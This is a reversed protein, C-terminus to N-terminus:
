GRSVPQSPVPRGSHNGPHLMSPREHESLPSPTRATPEPVTDADLFCLVEGSSARVGLNRVAALRFGQDEQRVLIVDDPVMVDGPSGDDAVIVELLHRPYDQAALAHLTRLLEGPQDYHAVIVSVRPLPDPHVDDLTDWRNGVVWPRVSATM